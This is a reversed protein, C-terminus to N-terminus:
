EFGTIGKQRCKRTVAGKFSRIISGVSKPIVHQYENRKQRPEGRQPQIYEVGVLDHAHEKLLLIGHLHNPMIVYEDVETNPFHQPIEKWCTKAIEGFPSLKVENRVIERLVCERDKICLTVYYEGAQAYDHGRLRISRRHHVLPNHKMVNRKVVSATDELDAGM